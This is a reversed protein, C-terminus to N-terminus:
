TRTAALAALVDDLAIDDATLGAAELPTQLPGPAQFASAAELAARDEPALHLGDLVRQGAPGTLHLGGAAVWVDVLERADPHLMAEVVAAGGIELAQNITLARQVTVPASPISPERLRNFVFHAEGALAYGAKDTVPAGDKSGDAQRIEEAAALDAAYVAAREALAVRAIATQLRDAVQPELAARPATM